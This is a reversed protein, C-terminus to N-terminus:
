HQRRTASVTFAPTTVSAGPTTNAGAATLGWIGPSVTGSNVTDVITVAGPKAIKLTGQNSLIPGSFSGTPNVVLIGSGTNTLGGSFSLTGAGVINLTDTTGVGSNTAAIQTVQTNTYTLTGTPTPTGSIVINGSGDLTADGYLAQEAPPARIRLSQM